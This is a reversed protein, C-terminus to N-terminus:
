QLAETHDVHNEYGILARMVANAATIEGPLGVGIKEALSAMSTLMASSAVFAEEFCVDRDSSVSVDGSDITITFVVKPSM